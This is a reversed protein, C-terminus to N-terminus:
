VDTKCSNTLFKSQQLKTEPLFPEEEDEDGVLTFDWACCCRAMVFRMELSMTLEGYM